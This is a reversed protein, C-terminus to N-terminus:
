GDDKHKLVFFACCCQVISAYQTPSSLSFDGPKRATVLDKTIILLYKRKIVFDTEMRIFFSRTNDLNERENNLM